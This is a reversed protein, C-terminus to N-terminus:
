TKFDLPTCEECKRGISESVGFDRFTETGVVLAISRLSPVHTARGRSIASAHKRVCPTQLPSAEVTATILGEQGEGKSAGRNGDGPVRLSVFPKKRTAGTRSAPLRRAFAAAASRRSAKHPAAIRM